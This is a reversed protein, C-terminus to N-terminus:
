TKSGNESQKEKKSRSIRLEKKREKNLVQIYVKCKNLHIDKRNHSEKYVPLNDINIHFMFFPYHMSDTHTTYTYQTHKINLALISDM